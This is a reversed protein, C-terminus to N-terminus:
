KLPWPIDVGGHRRTHTRLPVDFRSRTCVINSVLDLKAHYDSKPVGEVVITGAPVRILDSLVIPGKKNKRM